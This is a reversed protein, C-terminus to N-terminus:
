WFALWPHGLSFLSIHLTILVIWTTCDSVNMILAHRMIMLIATSCDNVFDAFVGSSLNRTHKIFLLALLHMLSAGETLIFYSDIHLKQSAKNKNDMIFSLLSLLIKSITMDSIYFRCFICFFPVIFCLLILFQLIFGSAPPNPRPPFIFAKCALSQRGCVWCSQRRITRQKEFRM